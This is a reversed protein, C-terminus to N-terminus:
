VMRTSMSQIEKSLGMNESLIIMVPVASSLTWSSKVSINTTSPLNAFNEIAFFLDLEQNM